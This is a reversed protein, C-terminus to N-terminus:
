RFTHAGEREDPRVRQSARVLRQLPEALLFQRFHQRHYRTLQGLWRWLIIAFSTPAPAPLPSAISVQRQLALTFWPRLIFGKYKTRSFASGACVM